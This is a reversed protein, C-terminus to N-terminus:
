VHFYFLDNNNVMDTFAILRIPIASKMDYDNGSCGSTSRRYCSFSGLDNMEFPKALFDDAGANFGIVINDVDSKQGTLMIVYTHSTKESQKIWKCLEVGDIGPMIWDLLVVVPEKIIQLIKWASEGDAALIVEYGWLKVMESLMTRVNREDDIILVKM